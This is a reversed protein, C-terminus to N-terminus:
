VLCLSWICVSHLRLCLSEVGCVYVVCWVCPSEVGFVIELGSVRVNEVCLCDSWVVGVGCVCVYM